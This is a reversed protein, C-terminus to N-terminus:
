NEFQWRMAGYPEATAVGFATTPTLVYLDWPPPGASPASYEATIAGDSTRAPWGQATYREAIRRLTAADSVKIATGEVVIDLDPLAGSVVCNANQDLNRSKRTGLGSTFYFKGDIWLAGVGAVHPRGDPRVTALWYSKATGAELQGLARSWPIPESGYIDLNEQKM